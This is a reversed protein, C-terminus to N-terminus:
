LILIIFCAVVLDLIAKDAANIARLM